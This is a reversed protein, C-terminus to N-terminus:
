RKLPEDSSFVFLRTHVCGVSLTCLLSLARLLHFPSSNKVQLNAHSGRKFVWEFFVAEKGQNKFYMKLSNQFRILETECEPPSLLTTPIHEIPIVLVHDEVLPGKALACYYHEGISTILHSELSPSSLCFWCDRSRFLVLQTTM